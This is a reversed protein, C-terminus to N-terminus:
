RGSRAVGGGSDLHYHPVVKFLEIDKKRGRQNGYTERSKFM